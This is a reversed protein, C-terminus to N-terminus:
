PGSLLLLQGCCNSTCDKNGTEDYWAWKIEQGEVSLM